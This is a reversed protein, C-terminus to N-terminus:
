VFSPYFTGTHPDPKLPRVSVTLGVNTVFNYTGCGNTVTNTTYIFCATNSPNPILTSLLTQATSIANNGPTITTVSRTLTGPTLTTDCTYRVYVLSGDANIDGFLNLTSIGPEANSTSGDPTGPFVVGNPFVGLVTVSAGVAHTFAFAPTFAINTATPDANVQVLEEKNNGTDILLQEGNFMSTTSTVAATTAGVATGANLTPQPNSPLSVVGAQGIEQTMLEAAGRVNEFM